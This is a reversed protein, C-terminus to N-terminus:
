SEASIKEGSLGTFSLYFKREEPPPHKTVRSSRRRTAPRRILLLIFAEEWVDVGGWGRM